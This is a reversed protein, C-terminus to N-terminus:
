QVTRIWCLTGAVLMAATVSGMERGSYLHGILPRREKVTPQNNEYTGHPQEETRWKKDEGEAYKELRQYDVEM